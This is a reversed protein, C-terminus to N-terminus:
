ERLVEPDVNLQSSLLSVERGADSLPAPLFQNNSHFAGHESEVTELYADDGSPEGFEMDCDECHIMWLVPQTSVAVAYISDSM